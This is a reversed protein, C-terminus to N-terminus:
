KHLTLSIAQRLPFRHSIITENIEPYTIPEKRIPIPIGGGPLEEYKYNDFKVIIFKPYSLEGAEFIVARVRGVRGNTLGRTVDLLRLITFLFTFTVSSKGLNETLLIKGGIQLYLDYDSVDTRLEVPPAAPTYITQLRLTPVSQGLMREVANTEAAINGAFVRTSDEFLKIEETSCNIKQRSRLLEIDRQSVRKFRFRHLLSLYEPNKTRHSGELVHPDFGRFM